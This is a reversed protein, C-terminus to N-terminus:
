FNARLNLNVGHEPPESGNENRDVEMDLFLQHDGSSVPFLRWGATSGRSSDSWNHNVFFQGTFRTRDLHHGWAAEATWRPEIAGAEEPSDQLPGSAFLSEMGGSSQSGYDQKLSLSLGRETQPRPDFSFAASYGVDGFDSNDNTLLGRGEVSINIGRGPHNWDLGGGLELRWGTEADGSDYRIGTEFKPTVMSETGTLLSWTGEIGLRFRSVEAESDALGSIADSTTRAWLLDSKAALAIGGGFPLNMLENRAGAAAMQWDLNAKLEDGENPKLTLSGQGAGVVGWVSLSEDIRLHGYPSVATFQAEIEGGTGQDESYQGEGLSHILAFGAIRDANALDTGIMGTVVEGDMSVGTDVGEFRSESARGWISFTDVDEDEEGLRYTLTFDSQLLLERPTMQRNELSEDGSDDYDDGKPTLNVTDSNLQGFNSDQKDDGVPLPVGGIRGELGSSRTASWRASVGEIVQEAVSRGFRGLWARPMPDTNVITGTAISRNLKAAVANSLVLKLTESGEDHSDDLVTVAVTKTTEGPAFRLTGQRATYDSGSSATGDRTQYDVTVPQVPSAPNLTVEFELRAGPAENVQADAVSLLPFQVPSSADLIDIQASTQSGTKYYGDGPILQARIVGNSGTEGDDARLGVRLEVETEGAKLTVSRESGFEKSTLLEAESLWPDRVQLRVRVNLDLSPAPASHLTFVAEGGERAGANAGITVVPASDGDNDSVTVSAQWKPTEGFKYGDSSPIAATLVGDPEALSDNDTGIVLTRSDVGAPLILHGHFVKGAIVDSSSDWTDGGGALLAYYIKLPANRPAGDPYDAAFTFTIDEGETVTKSDSSVSVSPLFPNINLIGIHASGNSKAGGDPELMDESGLEGINVIVTETREHNTDAIPTIFLPAEVANGTGGTFTVTYGTPQQDDDNPAPSSETSAARQLTEASGQFPSQSIDSSAFGSYTVGTPWPDPPSVNYDTGMQASGGFTLPVTMMEGAELPRGLSVSIQASHRGEEAFLSGYSLSVSTPDDDVITVIVQSDKTSGSNKLTVRFREPAEDLSDDIIPVKFRVSDVGAGFQLEGETSAYDARSTADISSTAYEVSIPAQAKGIRNVTLTVSGAGENVEVQADAFAFSPRDGEDKITGVATDASSLAFHSTRTLRVRFYHDGEYVDDPLTRITIVGSNRRGAPIQISANSRAGRYDSGAVAIQYSADDSSGRGNLTEYGITVGGAPAPEPLSVSFYLDAGEEKAIPPTITIASDDDAIPITVASGKTAVGGSLNPSAPKRGGTGFGIAITRAETDDNSRATIRLTATRVGADSGSITVAPNQRSHPTRTTLGVGAPTNVLEYRYHNTQVAGKFVLPVLVSEGSRLKRGLTIQVDESGNHEAISGTGRRSLTISTADNDSVSATASDEDKKIRYGDGAALNVTVSGDTEDNSDNDTAVEFSQSTEGAEFTVTQKNLGSSLVFAGAQHVVLAISLDDEPPRSATLTFSAAEGETVAGDSDLSIFPGPKPQVPQRDDDVRFFNRDGVGVRYGSGEELIIRVSGQPEDVTDIPITFSIDVQTVGVPMIVERLGRDSPKLFGNSDRIRLNLQINRTPAEDATLGVLVTGGEPVLRPRPVNVQVLPGDSVDVEVSKATVAQYSPATTALGFVAGFM